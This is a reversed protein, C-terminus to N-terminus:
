HVGCVEEFVIQGHVPLEHEHHADDDAREDGRAGVARELHLCHGVHPSVAKAVGPKGARDCAEAAADDRDVAGSQGPATGAAVAEGPQGLHGGASEDRRGAEEDAADDHGTQDVPPALSSM